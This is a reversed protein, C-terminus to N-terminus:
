IWEMSKVLRQASGPAGYVEPRPGHPTPAKLALQIKEINMGAIKNWGADITESWTTEDMCTICPVSAWYAEKQLGGSDTVVYRAHLLLDLMELYGLPEIITLQSDSKPSYDSADILNRTRPHMPLIVPEGLSGLGDLINILLGMSMTSKERHITSLIYKKKQLSYKSISSPRSLVLSKAFLFSDYMFDGANIVGSTIGESMLNEVALDSPTVLFDSTHDIIKRNIEEPMRKNGSRVGAEIHIVPFYYKASAITAALTSNTDGFVVVAKPMIDFLVKEVGVMIKGTMEAHTGSGVNLNYDPTPIELEEFFLSSMNKDYHQGTHLIKFKTKLGEMARILPSAKIFHPRAGVVILVINSFKNQNIKIM